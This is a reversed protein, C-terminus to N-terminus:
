QSFSPFASAFTCRRESAPAHSSMAAVAMRAEDSYLRSDRTGGGGGAGCSGGGGGGAPSGGGGSTGGEDGGKAGGGAVGSTAGEDGGKAGGGAVGGHVSASKQAHPTLPPVGESPSTQQSAEHTSM